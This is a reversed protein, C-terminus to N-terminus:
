WIYVRRSKSEWGRVGGGSGRLGGRSAGSGCRAAGMRVRRYGRRRYTEEMEVGEVVLDSKTKWLVRRLGLSLPKWRKKSPSPPVIVMGLAEAAWRHAGVMAVPAAEGDVVVM